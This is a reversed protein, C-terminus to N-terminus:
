YPLVATGQYWTLTENSQLRIDLDRLADLIFTESPRTVKRHPLELAPQDKLEAGVMARMFRAFQLALLLLYGLGTVRAPKELWFAGLHIPSKTWRFGQENQGQGRYEQLAQQADYTLNSTLLVFTSRREREAQIAEPVPNTVRLTVTYETRTAPPVGAKPRGRRKVPVEQEVIIPTVQHWRLPSEQQLIDAAQGADEASSFAKGILKKTFKTIRTREREIERQLTHEKKRDLAPSYYVFAPAPEDYFTM